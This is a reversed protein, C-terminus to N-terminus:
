PSSWDMVERALDEAMADPDLGAKRCERRLKLEIERYGTAWREFGHLAERLGELEDAMAPNEGQLRDVTVDTEAFRITHLRIWATIEALSAAGKTEAIKIAFDVMVQNSVLLFRGNMMLFMLTTTLGLRKNGDFLPHNKIISRLLVAAKNYWAPYLYRGDFSQRPLGLASLLKGPDNGDFRFAPLPEYTFILAALRHCILEVHYLEPYWLRAM